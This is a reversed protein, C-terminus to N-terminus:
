YTGADVVVNELSGKNTGGDIIIAPAAGGTPAAGSFNLRATATMTTAGAKPVYASTDVTNALHHWKNVTGAQYLMLDGVGVTAPNNAFKSAWSTEVAGAKNIMRFDGNAPAPTPAVYAVTVDFEGTFALGTISLFGADIKGASGLRVIRDADNAPTATPANLTEGRLIASNIAKTTDTGTHIETADAFSVAGGLSTWSASSGPAAANTLVYAQAPTGWTAIVVSGSIVNGPTAAWATYGAGIDAGGTLTISQTTITVDPNVRRFAAGDFAWLEPKTTAGAAGPFNLALEGEKFGTGGPAGAAGNIRRKIQVVSSM